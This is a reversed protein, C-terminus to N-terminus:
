KQRDSWAGQAIENPRREPDRWACVGVRAHFVAGSRRDRDATLNQFLLPGGNKSIGPVSVQFLIPAPLPKGDKGRLVFFKEWEWRERGDLEKPDALSTPDVTYMVATVFYSSELAYKRVFQEFEQGFEAATGDGGPMGAFAPHVGVPAGATSIGRKENRLKMEKLETVARDRVSADFGIGKGISNRDQDVKVGLAFVMHLASTKLAGNVYPQAILRINPQSCLPNKIDWDSPYAPGCPDFRFGTIVMSEYLNAVNPHGKTKFDTLSDFLRRSLIPGHEGEKSLSISFKGPPILLSLDCVDLRVQAPPSSKKAAPGDEPQGPLQAQAPFSPVLLNGAPTAVFFLFSLAIRRSSM